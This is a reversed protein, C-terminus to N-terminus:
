LSNGAGPCRATKRVFRHLISDVDDGQPTLVIAERDPDYDVRVVGVYTGSLDVVVEQDFPQAAVAKLFDDRNM